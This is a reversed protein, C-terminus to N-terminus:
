VRRRRLWNLGLLLAASVASLSLPSPEPTATGDVQAGFATPSSGNLLEWSGNNLWYDGYNSGTTAPDFLEIGVSDGGALGTVEVAMTFDQPVTVPSLSLDFNVTGVDSDNFTLPTPLTFFGSNYLPTAINPTPYGNYTTGTNPLLSVDMQVDGSFTADPSYVEFSFATVSYSPSAPGMLIEDGLTVGNLLTLSNGTDITSDNYIYQGYAGISAALFVVAGAAFSKGIFTKM